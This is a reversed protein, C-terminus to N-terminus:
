ESPSGLWGPSVNVGEGVVVAGDGVEGGVDDRGSGVVDRGVVFDGWGVRVSAGRDVAGRGVLAGFVEAGSRDSSAVERGAAGSAGGFDEVSPEVPLLDVSPEAGREEPSAVSSVDTRDDGWGVAGPVASEPGVLGACAPVGSASRELWFGVPCSRLEEDVDAAVVGWDAAPSDSASAAAFEDCLGELLLWGTGVLSAAALSGAAGTPSGVRLSFAAPGDPSAGPEPYPLRSSVPPRNAATAAPTPAHSRKPRLHAGAVLCAGRQGAAGCGTTLSLALSVVPVGCPALM